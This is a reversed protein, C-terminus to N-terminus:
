KLLTKRNVYAFGLLGISALYLAGPEPVPDTQTSIRLSAAIDYGALNLDPLEYYLGSFVGDYLGTVNLVDAGIALTSFSLTALLVDDDTIGPFVSGAVDNGSMVSDDDFGSGITYGDYNYFGGADFAVDFGFSLFDLGIGDGNLWVEVQFSDGVGAPANVLKLSAMPVALAPSYGALGLCVALLLVGLTKKVTKRM